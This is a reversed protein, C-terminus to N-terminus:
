GRRRGARRTTWGSAARRIASSTWRGQRDRQHARHVRRADRRTCENVLVPATTLALAVDGPEHDSLDDGGESLEGVGCASLTLSFTVALITRLM